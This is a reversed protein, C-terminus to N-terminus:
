RSLPIADKAFADRCEHIKAIASVIDDMDQKEALLLRHELWIAERCAGEANPCLAEFKAYDVSGEYHGCSL